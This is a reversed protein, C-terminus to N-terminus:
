MPSAKPSTNTTAVTSTPSHRIGANKRGRRGASFGASAAAIITPQARRPSTDQAPADRRGARRRPRPRGRRPARCRPRCPARGRDLWRRPGARPQAIGSGCGARAVALHEEGHIPAASAACIAVTTVSFRWSLGHRVEVGAPGAVGRPGLVVPRSRPVHGVDSGEVSQGVRAVRLEGAPWRPPMTVVSSRRCWQRRGTGTSRGARVLGVDAAGAHAGVAALPRQIRCSCPRRTSRPIAVSSSTM